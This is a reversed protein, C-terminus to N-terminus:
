NGRMERTVVNIVLHWEHRQDLVDHLKFGKGGSTNKREKESWKKKRMREGM